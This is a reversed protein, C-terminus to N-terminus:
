AAAKAPARLPVLRPAVAVNGRADVYISSPALQYEGEPYFVAANDAKDRPLIVEVKTPHPDPKGDRDTLWMWVTQFSMHYAKGSTKSTGSQDRVATSTVSVRIM